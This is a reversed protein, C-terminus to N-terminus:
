PNLTTKDIVLGDPILKYLDFGLGLLYRSAEPINTLWRLEKGDADWLFMSGCERIALQGEFCRCDFNAGVQIDGDVMTSNDWYFMEVDQLEDDSIKDEVDSFLIKILGRMEEETMDSLPRLCLKFKGESIGKIVYEHNSWYFPFLPYPENDIKRDPDYAAKDCGIYLHLYDSIKRQTSM